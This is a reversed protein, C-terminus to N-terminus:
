AAYLLNGERIVTSPLSAKLHLRSDFAERSWVLIDAATGMDGLVAHAKQALRYGPETTHSLVVLLDYDSDSGADGRARSGFLYIREPKLKDILRAVITALVPDSDLASDATYHM